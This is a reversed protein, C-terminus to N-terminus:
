SDRAPEAEAPDPEPARTGERCGQGRKKEMREWAVQEYYQVLTRLCHPREQLVHTLIRHRVRRPQAWSCEVLVERSEAKVRASLIRVHQWAEPALLAEIRPPLDARRTEGAATAGAEGSQVGTTHAAEPVAANGPGAGGRADVPVQGAPAGAAAGAKRVDADGRVAVRGDGGAPGAAAASASGEEAGRDGGDRDRAASSVEPVGAGGPREGVGVTSAIGSSDADGARGGEQTSAPQQRALSVTTQGASPAPAEGGPDATSYPAGVGGEWIGAREGGEVAEGAQVDGAAGRGGDRAALALELRRTVRVTGAALAELTRADPPRVPSALRPRKPEPDGFSTAARRRLQRHASSDDDSLDEARMGPWTNRLPTQEEREVEGYIPFEAARPWPPTFGPIPGPGPAPRRWPWSMAGDPPPAPDSYAPRHPSVGKVPWSLPPPAYDAILEEASERGFTRRLMSRTFWTGDTGGPGDMTLYYHVESRGGRSHRDHFLICATLAGPGAEAEAILGQYLEEEM